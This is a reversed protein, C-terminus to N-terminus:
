GTGHDRGGKTQNNLAAGVVLTVKFHEGEREMWGHKSKKATKKAERMARGMAATASTAEVAGSAVREFRGKDFWVVTYGFVRM